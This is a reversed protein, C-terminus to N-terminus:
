KEASASAGRERWAMICAVIFLLACCESFVLFILQNKVYRGVQMTHVVAITLCNGFNYSHLYLACLALPLLRQFPAAPARRSIAILALIISAVFIPPYAAYLITNVLSVPYAQKWEARSQELELTARRYKQYSDLPVEDKLSPYTREALKGFPLDARSSADYTQNRWSYFQMLQRLVKRVMRGPQHIWAKEYYSFCFEKYAEKDKGFFEGALACVSDKHYLFVDPNIDMATYKGRANRVEDDILGIMKLLLLRRGGGGPEAHTAVEDRIIDAREADRAMEDRIIDAHVSLLLSPLFCDSRPDYLRVLREEPAYLTVFVLVAPLLTVGVKFAIQGRAYILSAVVPAIAFLFGFGWNPKVFYVLAADYVLASGWAFAATFAGAEVCEQFRLALWICLIVFFPFVAEPRISHEMLLSGKSLLFIGLAVPGLIVRMRRVLTSDPLFRGLRGWSALLLAGSLLGLLHQAVCIASFRGFVALIGYIWFPYVFTRGYTHAFVGKTLASLAPFLYGWTDPDGFPIPPLRFRM